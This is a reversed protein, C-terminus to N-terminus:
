DKFLFVFVYFAFFIANKNANKRNFMHVYRVHFKAVVVDNELKVMYIDM